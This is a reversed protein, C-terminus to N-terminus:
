KSLGRGSPPVGSESLPKYVEGQHCSDELSLLSALVEAKHQGVGHALQLAEHPSSDRAHAIIQERKQLLEIALKDSVGPILELDSMDACALPIRAGFALLTEADADIKPVLWTAPIRPHTELVTWAAHIGLMIVLLACLTATRSAM